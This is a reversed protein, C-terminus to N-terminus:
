KRKTRAAPAADTTEPEAPAAAEPQERVLSGDSQRIYRGGASPQEHKTDDSM